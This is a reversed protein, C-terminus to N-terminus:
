TRNGCGLDLRPGGPWHRRATRRSKGPRLVKVDVALLRKEFHLVAQGHTGDDTAGRPELRESAGVGFIVDLVDTAM